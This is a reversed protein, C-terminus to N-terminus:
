VHAAMRSNFETLAARRREYARAYLIDLSQPDMAIESVGTDNMIKLGVQSWTKGGDTTKYVGASRM